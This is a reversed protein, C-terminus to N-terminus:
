VNVVDVVAAAVLAQDAGPFGGDGVDGWGYDSGDNQKGLPM